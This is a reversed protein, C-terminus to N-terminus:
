GVAAATKGAERRLCRAGKKVEWSVALGLILHLMERNQGLGQFVEGWREMLFVTEM